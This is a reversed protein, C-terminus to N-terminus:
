SPRRALRDRTRRAAFLVLFDTVRADASLRSFEENYIDKVVALPQHTEEALESIAEANATEDHPLPSDPM